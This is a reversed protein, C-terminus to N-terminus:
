LVVFRGRPHRGLWSCPWRGEQYVPMLTTYFEPQELVSEVAAWSLDRHVRDVIDPWLGSDAGCRTNANLDAPRRAFYARVGSRVQPEIAEYVRDFIITIAPDGIRNQAIRELRESRATWVAMMEASWNDWAVVADAVVHYRPDPHGANSFWPVRALSQLFRDLRRVAELEM